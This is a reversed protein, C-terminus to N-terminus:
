KTVHETTDSPSQQYYFGDLTGEVLGRNTPVLSGFQIPFVQSAKKNLFTYGESIDEPRPGFAGLWFSVQGQLTIITPQIIGLSNDDQCPPSLYGEMRSGDALIFYARMVFMGQGPDLPPILIHPKVTAEVQGEEGEEDLAFEWVPYDDLDALTLLYVQKRVRTNQRQSEM